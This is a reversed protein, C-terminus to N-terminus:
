RAVEAQFASDCFQCGAQVNLQRKRCYSPPPILTACPQRRRSCPCPPPLVASLWPAYSGEFQKITAGFIQGALLAQFGLAAGLGSACGLREASWCGHGALGADVVQRRAAPATSPAGPCTGATLEAAPLCAPSHQGDLPMSLPRVGALMGIHLLYAASTQPCRV